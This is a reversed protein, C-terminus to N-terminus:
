QEALRGGLDNRRTQLRIIGGMTRDLSSSASLLRRTYPHQPRDFIESRTGIEVFRGGNMVVVRDAIQEVAGLDHSIFICAFNFRGQLEALLDLIQKQVTMDLASVPEDAIIIDPRRIIARAIAVRQRQGGSLQHPFRGVFERGLGVDSLVALTRERRGASTLTAEHRLPEEIIADIHMRPDLSSYPDQFIMQIRQRVAHGVRYHLETLEEGDLLVKGATTSILGVLSRGLTTKGSGSAGVLAVTEGPYLDLSVHDVAKKPASTAFLRRRGAHVITLDLVQLVPKGSRDLSKRQVRSPLSDLLRCTYEHSPRLLVDRAPGQEVIKGKQMVAVRAAYRAVLPLDHSILLVAAGNERCLEVMLEMIEQQLLSDLATTPEDAILLTPRLLMVSALLIRQRMGGSFQHPFADFCGRPDDIRVRELMDLCLKMAEHRSLRRHLRLGEMMQNGITRSPNLSVMPEQFVMGIRGGRIARLDREALKTLDTSEFLISGDAIRVAAPLLNLISRALMTKGSGSEGVVAFIEGPAVEFSAGDVITLNGVKLTLDRTSLVARQSLMLSADKELARDNFPKHRHNPPEPILITM